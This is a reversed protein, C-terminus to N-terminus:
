PTVASQRFLELFRHLSRPVLFKMRADDGFGLIDGNAIPTRGNRPLSEGNVYTGNASGLDTVQWQTRDEDDLEDADLAVDITVAPDLFAHTRSVSPLAICLQNTSSRGVTYRGAASLEVFAVMSGGRIEYSRAERGGSATADTELSRAQPPLERTSEDSGIRRTRGFLLARASWTADDVAGDVPVLFILAPAPFRKAFAAVNMDAALVALENLNM